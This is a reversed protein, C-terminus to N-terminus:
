IARQIPISLTCLDIFVPGIRLRFVHDQTPNITAPTPPELLHAGDSEIHSLLQHLAAGTAINIPEEDSATVWRVSSGVAEADAVYTKIAAQGPKSLDAELHLAYVYRDPARLILWTKVALILDGTESSVAAFTGRKQIYRVIAERLDEPPWKLLTIGPMHDAGELALFPVEIKLSVPFPPSTTPEPAPTVHINHVCASLCFLLLGRFIPWSIPRLVPVVPSLDSRDIRNKRRISSTLIM